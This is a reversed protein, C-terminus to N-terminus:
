VDLIHSHDDDVAEEDLLIQHDDEERGEARIMEKRKSQTTQNQNQNRLIGIQKAISTATQSLDGTVMKVRIGARKCKEIAEIAGDRIPDEFVFVGCFSLRNPDDSSKSHAFAILRNGSIALDSISKSLKQKSLDDLPM